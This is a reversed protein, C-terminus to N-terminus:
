VNELLLRLGACLLLLIKCVRVRLSMEWKDVNSKLSDM